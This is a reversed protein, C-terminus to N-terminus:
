AARRRAVSPHAWVGREERVGVQRLTGRIRAEPNMNGVMKESANESIYAYIEPLRARGGLARLAKDVITAWTVDALMKLRSSKEMAEGLWCLATEEKKLVLYYEHSIRILEDENAYFQSDSSCHIQEKIIIGDLSGPLIQLLDSQVSIYKGAKRLDAILLAYRGGPMLAEFGNDVSLKMLELFDKYTPAHSLDSPHPRQGWVRGSYIKLRWYPPHINLFSAPRPLREVLPNQTMDYGDRLDFGHYELNWGRKILAASLDRSTGSGECIDCFIGPQNLREGFYRRRHPKMVYETAYGSANGPYGADGYPGREEFRIISGM